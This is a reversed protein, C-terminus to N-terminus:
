ALITWSPQGVYSTEPPANIPQIEQATISDPVVPQQFRKPRTPVDIIETVPVGYVDDPLSTVRMLTEEASFLILQVPELVTFYWSPSGNLKAHSGNKWTHLRKVIVVVWVM